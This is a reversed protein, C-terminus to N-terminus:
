TAGVGRLVAPLTQLLIRFDLALSWRDIYELDLRLWDVFGLDSRGQIQWLCTLGPRMSFRRMAGPETFRAVDRLPLPRPGVLSMEGRLVNFLQPLEDISSKRLFNGIPTCRPDDRIKFVPGCAENLHEVSAQREEADANMTRFKYMRFRRKNFGVREQVFIAMGPSTVRVALVTAFLLPSLVILGIISGVIDVLRKVVLRGDEPAIPMVVAAVEGSEELRPWTRSDPFVDALYKARVGARECVRIADHIANYSSRMPLAILVEDLPRRMVIAELQDLRGLLRRGIEESAPANNSDVFGLVNYGVRRDASLRRYADVARPGSGVIIVDRGRSAGSDFVLARLITRQLVVLATTILWFDLMATAGFAGSTSDLAIILTCGSGLTGAVAVRALEGSRAGISRWDYLGSIALVGRWALLFVLAVLLKELSIRVALYTGLGGPTRGLSTVLSAAVLGILAAAMDAMRCLRVYLMRNPPGGNAATGFPPPRAPRTALPLDLPQAVSRGPLVFTV